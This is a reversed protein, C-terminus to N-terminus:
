RLPVPTLDQSYELQSTDERRQLYNEVPMYIVAIYFAHLVTEVLDILFGIASWSFRPLLVVWDQHMAWGPFVLDFLLCLVYSM